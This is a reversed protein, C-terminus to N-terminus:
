QGIRKPIRIDPICACFETDCIIPNIDINHHTNKINGLPKKKATSCQAGYVTGDYWVVLRNYGANCTWGTFSHRNNAVLELLKSINYRVGDIYVDVATKNNNQKLQKNFFFNQIFNKEEITYDVSKNNALAARNTIPKIMVRCPLDDEIIKEAIIKCKNINKKDYMILVTLKSVAGVIRIVEALHKYEVYEFHVSISIQTLNVSNILRDWYKLSRSGNSVIAIEYSKNIGQLFEILNPWLTPEGGTLTLMKDNSNVNEHVYDWFRLSDYLSPWRHTGIHLRPDCYSCKYNCVNTLVWEAHMSDPKDNTIELM